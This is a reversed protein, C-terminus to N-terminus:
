TENIRTILSTTKPKPMTIVQCRSIITELVQNIDKSTIIAYTNVPPEELFKLLTNNAEISGEELNQILYIKKNTVELASLSFKNILNIIREKNIKESDPNLIM